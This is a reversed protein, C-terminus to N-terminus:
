SQVSSPLLRIDREVGRLIKRRARFILMKLTEVRIGLDAAAEKYTAGKLEVLSLARQEKASRKQYQLLYVNLYTVYALNVLKAREAESASRYPSRASRDEVDDGISDDSAVAASRSEVKFLKCATNAAIRHGWKRFAGPVDGRFSKRYRCINM